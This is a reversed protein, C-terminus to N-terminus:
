ARPYQIGEHRTLSKTPRRIAVAWDCRGQWAAMLKPDKLARLRVAFGVIQNKCLAIPSEPGMWGFPNQIKPWGHLVFAVGVVLRLLLLGVSGVHGTTHTYFWHRM